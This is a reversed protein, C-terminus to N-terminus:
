RVWGMNWGHRRWTVKRRREMGMKEAGYGKRGGLSPRRLTACTNVAPEGPVHNFEHVLFDEEGAHAPGDPGIAAISGGYAVFEEVALDGAGLADEAWAGDVGMEAEFVDGFVEVGRGDDELVRGFAFEDAFEFLAVVVDADGEEHRDHMAHLVGDGEDAFVRGLGLDHEATVARNKLVLFEQGVAVV